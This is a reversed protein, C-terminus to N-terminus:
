DQPGAGPHATRPARDCRGAYFPVTVTVPWPPRGGQCGGCKAGSAVPPRGGPVGRVESRESRQPEGLPPAEPLSRRSGQIWGEVMSRVTAETQSMQPLLGPKPLFTENEWRRVGRRKLGFMWRLRTTTPPVGLLTYTHVEQM